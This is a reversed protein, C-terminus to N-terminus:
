DLAKLADELERGLEDVALDESDHLDTDMFRKAAEIIPLLLKLHEVAPNPLGRIYPEYEEVAAKIEDLKSM